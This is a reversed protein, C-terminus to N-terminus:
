CRQCIIRALLAKVLLEGPRLARCWCGLRLWGGPAAGWNKTGRSAQPFNYTRIRESRDGSGIQERRQLSQSARQAAQEREWLRARLVKLAKAKNKHQSREDQASTPM